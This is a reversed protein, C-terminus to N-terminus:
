VEFTNFCNAYAFSLSGVLWVAFTRLSGSFRPSESDFDENDM